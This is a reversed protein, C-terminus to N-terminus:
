NLSRLVSLYGGFDSVFLLTTIEQKLQNRSALLAVSIARSSPSCSPRQGRIQQRMRACRPTATPMATSACASRHEGLGIRRTPRALRLRSAEIRIATESPSAVPASRGVERHPQRSTSRGCSQLMSSREASAGDLPATSIQRRSQHVSASGTAPSRRSETTIISNSPTDFLSTHILPWASPEPRHNIGNAIFERRIQVPASLVHDRHPLYSAASSNRHIPDSNVPMGPQQRRGHAHRIPFATVVGCM